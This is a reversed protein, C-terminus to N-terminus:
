PRLQLSSACTLMDFGGFTEASSERPVQSVHQAKGNIDAHPCPLCWVRITQFADKLERRATNRKDIQEPREGTQTWDFSEEGFILNYAKDEESPNVDRLLVVLHGFVKNRYDHGIENVVHRMVGLNDLM